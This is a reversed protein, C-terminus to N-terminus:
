DIGQVPMDHASAVGDNPKRDSLAQARAATNAALLVSAAALAALCRGFSVMRPGSIGASATVIRGESLGLRSAILIKKRGRVRWKPLGALIVDEAAGQSRALACCRHSHSYCECQLFSRSAGPQSRPRTRSAPM